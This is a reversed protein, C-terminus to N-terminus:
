APAPVVWDLATLAKEGMPGPKAEATCFETVARMPRKECYEARKMKSASPLAWGAPVGLSREKAV